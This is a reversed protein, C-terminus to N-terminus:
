GAARARHQVVLNQSLDLSVTYDYDDGVVTLVFPTVDGLAQVVLLQSSQPGGGEPLDLRLSLYEPLLRQRLLDDRSVPTWTEGAELFRYSGAQEDVEVAYTRGSLVSEDRLYELLRAFRRAELEAVQDRDRELSLGIITVSIGILVLVVMIELLTFGRQRSKPSVGVLTHTAGTMGNYGSM